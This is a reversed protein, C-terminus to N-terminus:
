TDNALVVTKISSESSKEDKSESDLSSLMGAM